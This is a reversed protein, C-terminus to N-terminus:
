FFGRTFMSQHIVAWNSIPQRKTVLQKIDGASRVVRVRQVVLGSITARSFSCSLYLIRTFIPQNKISSRYVKEGDFDSSYLSKGFSKDVMYRPVMDQLM